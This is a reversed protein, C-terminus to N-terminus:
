LHVLGLADFLAYFSVGKPLRFPRQSRRRLHNALRYRVYWDIDRFAMRPYGFSFYNGWGKLHGNLMRIYDPIPMYNWKSGTLGRLVAREKNLARKMPMVNLYKRGTRYLDRDYRFTFGLFDLGVGEKRLDVVRTKERNIELGMWNELKEEVFAVLKASQCRALIVFDDAYRILKANAWRAPGRLGNFAKDFWHLYVNALLPSIVGGQPTGRRSRSYHPTGGKGGPTEVIVADLWMRILKLVSRDAIRWQLCAMLRDHPISDFSYM